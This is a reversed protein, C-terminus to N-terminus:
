KGGVGVMQIRNQAIVTASVPWLVFGRSEVTPLYQTLVDLTSLRPHGIAIAHGYRRAMAEAQAIQVRIAAPDPSNDLFVDRAVTPIGAAQARALAAVSHSITLSDVFILGRDRLEGMVLDMLPVSLSAVSGEHQNLGIANPVGDLAARLSALNVEPPLWTRLAGPGPNTRGLPEMPMHLMTECSTRPGTQRRSAWNRRTPCGPSLTLPGPLAAARDSQVRNLGMDDLIIAITPKGDAPPAAVAFRRWAPIAPPVPDSVAAATMPAVVPPAVVPPTAVAPATTAPTEAPTAGLVASPTEVQRSQPMEPRRLVWVTGGAAVAGAVILGLVSLSLWRRAM